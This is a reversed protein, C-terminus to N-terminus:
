WGAHQFLETAARSRLNSFEGARVDWCVVVEIEVFLVRKLIYVTILDKKITYQSLLLNM